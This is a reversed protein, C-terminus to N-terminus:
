VDKGGLMEDIASLVTPYLDSVFQIGREEDAHSLRQEVEERLVQLKKRVEPAVETSGFERAWAGEAVLTDYAISEDTLRLNKHTLAVNVALRSVNPIEIVHRTGSTRSAFQVAGWGRSGSDHDFRDEVFALLLGGMLGRLFNHNSASFPYCRSQIYLDTAFIDKQNGHILRLLDQSVRLFEDGFNLCNTELDNGYPQAIFEQVIQVGDDLSHVLHTLDLSSESEEVERLTWFSNASNRVSERGSVNFEVMSQILVVTVITTPFIEKVFRAIDGLWASGTAGSSHAVLIVMHPHQISSVLFNRVQDEHMLLAARMLSRTTNRLFIDPLDTLRPHWQNCNFWSTVSLGTSQAWRQVVPYVDSIYGAFFGNFLDSTADLSLFQSNGDTSAQLAEVVKTGIGGLGIVAVQPEPPKTM